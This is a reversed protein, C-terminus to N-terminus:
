TVMLWVFLTILALAGLFLWFKKIRLFGPLRRQVKRTKMYSKFKASARRDVAGDFDGLSKLVSALEAEKTILEQKYQICRFADYKKILTNLYAPTIKTTLLGANVLVQRCADDSGTPIVVPIVEDEITLEKVRTVDLVASAAKVPFGKYFLGETPTFNLLKEWTAPSLLIMRDMQPLGGFFTYKIKMEYPILSAPNTKIGEKVHSADPETIQLISETLICDSYVDGPAKRYILEIVDEGVLQGKISNYYSTIFAIYLPGSSFLVVILLEMPLKIFMGYNIFLSLLGLPAILLILPLLFEKWGYGATRTVEEESM